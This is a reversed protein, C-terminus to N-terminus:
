LSIAPPCQPAGTARESEGFLLLAFALYVSLPSLLLQSTSCVDQSLTPGLQSRLCLWTQASLGLQTQMSPAPLSDADEEGEENWEGERGPSMTGRVYAPMSTPARHASAPTSVMARGTGTMTELKVM